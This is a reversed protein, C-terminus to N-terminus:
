RLSDQKLTQIAQATSNPDQFEYLPRAIGTILVTGAACIACVVISGFNQPASQNPIVGENNVFAAKIMGVYYYISIVSSIALVFALPTLGATLADQFIFLKGFFGALPPIGILSCVCFIFTVTAFPSRSWLGNLDAFRTNEKGDYACLSVVAFAGVTMFVYGALYFTTTALSVQDPARVHALVSVLLYGANAISSYGLVRKVDSQTLAILNGVLMTIIAIWYMAPFWLEQLESAAMLVRVLTGIAAIKSVAAMFATANTPAGQYVDPTWQHFPVFAAKFALGILLLAIGFGILPHAAPADAQWTPGIRDLQLSGTAGYILAIGYLLFASAFAGLLFYKLASEESKAEQRALGAMVYLAISLVELGLFIMLLNQTSVMIMAGGASWLALPYFEAFAIRKQRLYGESFLLSLFCGAVILLQMVLGFRDQLVMKGFSEGDPQFFQHVILGATFACGILSTVVVANNNRKPQFMEIILALVGTSMIAIIPSIAWWDIKPMQTVDFM